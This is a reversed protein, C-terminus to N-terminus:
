NEEAAEKLAQRANAIDAYDDNSINTSTNTKETKKRINDVLKSIDQEDGSSSIVANGQQTTMHSVNSFKGNNYTAHAFAYIPMADVKTAKGECRFLVITNGGKNKAVGALTWKGQESYWPVRETQCDDALLASIAEVNKSFELKNADLGQYKNQLDVLQNGLDKAAIAEQGAPSITPEDALAVTTFCVGLVLSISLIISTIKVFRSQM